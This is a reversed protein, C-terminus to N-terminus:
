KIVGLRAALAYLICIEAQTIYTEIEDIISYITYGPKRSLLHIHSSVNYLDTWSQLEMIRDPNFEKVKQHLFSDPIFNPFLRVYEFPSYLGGEPRWIDPYPQYFQGLGGETGNTRLRPLLDDPSKGYQKLFQGTSYLTEFTEGPGFTMTLFYVLDRCKDYLELCDKMHLKGKEHILNAGEFGIELLRVGAKRLISSGYRNIFSLVTHSHALAILNFGGLEACHSLVVFARDMNLFLDEDTFHINRYGKVDFFSIKEKVEELSLILWQKNNNKSSPCFSCGRPCGYSTHFPYWQGKFAGKIHSDCDSLLVSQFDEFSKGQHKIGGLIEGSNIIKKPFGFEDIFGYYGFFKAKPFNRYLELCIAKQTPSWFAVYIRSNPDIKDIEPITFNELFSVDVKAEYKQYDYFLYPLYCFSGRNWETSTPDIITVKQNYM